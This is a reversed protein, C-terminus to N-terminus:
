LRSRFNRRGQEVPHETIVLEDQHYEEITVQAKIPGLKRQPKFIATVLESAISM